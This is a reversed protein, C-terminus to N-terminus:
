NEDAPISGKEKVLNITWEQKCYVAEEVLIVMPIPGFSHIRL